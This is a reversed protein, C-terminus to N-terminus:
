IRLTVTEQEASAFAPALWLATLLLCLLLNLAKKM